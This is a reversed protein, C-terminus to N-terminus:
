LLKEGMEVGALLHFHLHMVTQGADKGCNNIVRYGKEDIGLEKAIKKIALFIKGLIKEDEDSIENLNSIHKKPVVLIHVPAVPEIDKFAYVYEDEYVKSSPITGKIIRCFLCEEM